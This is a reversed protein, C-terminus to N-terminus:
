RWHLGCPKVVLGEISSHNLLTLNIRTNGNSLKGGLINAPGASILTVTLVSFLTVTIASSGLLSGMFKVTLPIKGFPARIEFFADENTIIQFTVVSFTFHYYDM